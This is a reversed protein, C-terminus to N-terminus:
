YLENFNYAVSVVIMWITPIIRTMAKHELATITSQIKHFQKLNNQYMQWCFIQPRRTLLVTNFVNTKWTIRHIETSFKRFRDYNYWLLVLLCINIKDNKGFKGGICNLRICNKLRKVREVMRNMKWSMKMKKKWPFDLKVSPSDRFESFLIYKQKLNNM